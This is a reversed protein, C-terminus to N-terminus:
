RENMEVAILSNSLSSFSDLNPDNYQVAERVKLLFRLTQHFLAKRGSSTASASVEAKHLIPAASATPAGRIQIKKGIGFSFGHRCSLDM